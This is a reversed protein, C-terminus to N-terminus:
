ALELRIALAEEYAEWDGSCSEWRVTGVSALRDVDSSGRQM